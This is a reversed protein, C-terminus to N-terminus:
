RIRFKKIEESGFYGDSECDFVHRLIHVTWESGFQNRAANELARMSRSPESMPYSVDGTAGQDNSVYATYKCNRM